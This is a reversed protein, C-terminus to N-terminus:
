YEVFIENKRVSSLIHSRLVPVKLEDTFKRIAKDKRTIASEDLLFSVWNEKALQGPPWCYLKPHYGRPLPYEPPFHDPYAFKKCRESVSAKLVANGVASHDSHRDKPHPFFIVTPSLKKFIETVKQEEIKFHLEGDPFELSEFTINGLISLAQALESFRRDKKGRSNGDSLVVVHVKAGKTAATAMYGGVLTTEDDPHPSFVVITDQSTATTLQKYPPAIKYKKKRHFPATAAGIIHRFAPYSM